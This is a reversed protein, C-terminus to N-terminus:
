KDENRGKIFSTLSQLENFWEQPPHIGALSYRKIADCIDKVRRERWIYMPMIGLPPKKSKTM